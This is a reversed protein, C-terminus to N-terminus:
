VGLVKPVFEEVMVEDDLESGFSQLDWQSHVTSPSSEICMGTYLADHKHNCTNILAQQNQPMM